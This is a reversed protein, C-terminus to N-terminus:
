NEVSLNDSFVFVILEAIQMKHMKICKKILGIRFAKNPWFWFTKMKHSIHRCNLIHRCCVSSCNRMRLSKLLHWDKSTKSSFYQCIFNKGQICEGECEGMVFRPLLEIGVRGVKEFLHLHYIKPRVCASGLIAWVEWIFTRFFFIM